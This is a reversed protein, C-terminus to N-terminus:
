RMVWPFTFCDTNYLSYDATGNIVFTKIRKAKQLLQCATELTKGTRSVDDVVLVKKGRITCLIRDVRQPKKYMIKHTDDRYRLQLIYFPLNLKQNLLAAPIIGGRGIAVIIDFTERFHIKDLRKILQAFSKSRM